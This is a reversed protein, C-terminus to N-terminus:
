TTQGPRMAGTRAGMAPPSSVVYADQCQIKRILAGSPTMAKAM